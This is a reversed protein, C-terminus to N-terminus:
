LIADVIKYKLAENADFYWDQCKIKKDDLFEKSLNSKKLFYQDCILDLRKTENLEQEHYQIKERKKINYSAEHYMFTTYKGCYRKHGAMFVCLAMSFVCGYGYIYIPTSSNDIIDILALGDYANGGDAKLIINIPNELKQYPNLLSDEENFIIIKEIVENVSDGEINYLTLLRKSNFGKKM